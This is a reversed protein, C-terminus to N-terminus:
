TGTPSSSPPPRYPPVPWSRHIPAVRLQERHGGRGRTAFGGHPWRTSCCPSSTTPSSPTTTAGTQPNFTYTTWRTVEQLGVMDPGAAAIEDAIAAMREPPRTAQVAAWTQTAAGVIANNDGSALATLVPTLDAGLYLNRTM